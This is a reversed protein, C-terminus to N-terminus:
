AALLPKAAAFARHLASADFTPVGEAACQLHELAREFIAVAEARTTPNSNLITSTLSHIETEEDRTPDKDGKRQEAGLYIENIRAASLLIISANLPKPTDTRKPM